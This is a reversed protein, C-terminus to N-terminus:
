LLAGLSLKAILCALDRSLFFMMVIMMHQGKSANAKMSLEYKLLNVPAAKYRLIAAAIAETKYPRSCM